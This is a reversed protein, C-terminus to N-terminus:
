HRGARRRCACASGAPWRSWRCGPRRRDRQAEDQVRGRRRRHRRHEQGRTVGPDAVAVADRPQRRRGELDGGRGARDDPEVRVAVRHALRRGVVARDEDGGRRERRARVPDGRRGLVHGAVDAGRRRGDRDHDLRRGGRRRREGQGGGRLGDGALGGLRGLLDDGQRARGAGACVDREEAREVGVRRDHLRLGIGAAVEREAVDRQGRAGLRERHHGAVHRAVGALRRLRERGRRDVRAGRHDRGAQRVVRADRAGVADGGVRRDGPDHIVRDAHRAEPRREVAALRHVHGRQQGADAERERRGLQGREVAAGGKGVARM